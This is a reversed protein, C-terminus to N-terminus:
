TIKLSRQRISCRNRFRILMGYDLYEMIMVLDFDAEVQEIFEDVPQPESGAPVKEDYGLDYATCSRGFWWFDGGTTNTYKEPHEMFDSFDKSEKFGNALERFYGYSSKIMTVPDRMITFKFHDDSRLVKKLDQSYRAHNCM